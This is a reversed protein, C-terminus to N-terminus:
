VRTTHTSMWVFTIIFSLLLVLEINSTRVSCKENHSLASIIREGKTREHKIETKLCVKKERKNIFDRTPFIIKKKEYFRVGVCFQHKMLHKM